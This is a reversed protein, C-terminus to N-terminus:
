RKLEDPFAPRERVHALYDNLTEFGELLDYSSAWDLTYGLVIDAVYFSGEVVSLRGRLARDLVSAAQRFEERALPVDAAIRKDEPYLRTHRRIRWLPQELENTCFMLWQDHLARDATGELPLLGCDKHKGALYLCIAVSEFVVLPGDVLVPVRGFPNLELYGASKHEGTRLDVLVSRFPVGLEQLTWRCRASRTGPFEYLTLATDNM